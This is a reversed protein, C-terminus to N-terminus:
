NLYTCQIYADISGAGTLLNKDMAPLKEARFFRFKVEYFEPRISPPMLISDDTKDMGSDENIQIQEDGTAAISISLKL